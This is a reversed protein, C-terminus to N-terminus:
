ADCLEEQLLLQDGCMTLTAPVNQIGYKQILVGDQDFYVPIHLTKQLELPAGKVLVLTHTHMFNRVFDVQSQDDGDIFIFGKQRKVHHLPNIKQGKTAIVEGQPTTIDNEIIVSPDVFWTRKTKTKGLGGVPHPRKMRKRVKAKWEEQLSILSGNKALTNLKNKLYDLM